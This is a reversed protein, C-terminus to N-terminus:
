VTEANLIYSSWAIRELEVSVMLMQAVMMQRRYWWLLQREVMGELGNEM